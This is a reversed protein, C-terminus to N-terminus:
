RHFNMGLTLVLAPPPGAVFPRWQAVEVFLSRTERMAFELGGGYSWFPVGSWGVGATGYLLARDGMAFGVRGQAQAGFLITPFVTAFAEVEVGAVINGRVMNWGFSGGLIAAPYFPFIPVIAFVGVYKGAWDFHMAMPPPPAPPAPAVMPPLDAALASTAVMASVAAGLIIRGLKM